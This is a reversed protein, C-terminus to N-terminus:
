LRPNKEKLMYSGIAGCSSLFGTKSIIMNRFECEYCVAKQLIVWCLRGGNKGDNLGDATTDGAVPCVGLMHVNKGRPERGCKKYEWCNIRFLMENDEANESMNRKLDNLKNFAGILKGDSM